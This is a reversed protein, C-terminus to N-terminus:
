VITENRWCCTMPVDKEYVGTERFLDTGTYGYGNSQDV